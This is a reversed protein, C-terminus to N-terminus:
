MEFYVDACIYVKSHVLVFKDNLQCPLYMLFIYITHVVYSYGLGRYQKCDRSAINKRQFFLLSLKDLFM